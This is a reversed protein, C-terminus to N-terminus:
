QSSYERIKFPVFRLLLFKPIGVILLALLVMVSVSADIRGMLLMYFIISPALLWAMFGTEVLMADCSKCRKAVNASM